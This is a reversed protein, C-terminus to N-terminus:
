KLFVRVRHGDEDSSLVERWGQPATVRGSDPFEAILMLRSDEAPSQMVLTGDRLEAHGTREAPIMYKKRLDILQVYWDLM